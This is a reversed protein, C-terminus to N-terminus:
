EKIRGIRSVTAFSIKIGESTLIAAIDRVSYGDMKMKKVREKVTQSIEYSIPKKCHPCIM